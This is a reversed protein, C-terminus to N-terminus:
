DVVKSTIHLCVCVCVCVCVHSVTTNWITLSLKPPQIYYWTNKGISTQAYSECLSKGNM